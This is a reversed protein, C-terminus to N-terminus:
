VGFDLSLAVFISVVVVYGVGRVVFESGKV